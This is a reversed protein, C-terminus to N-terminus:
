PHAKGHCRLTCSSGNYSVPLRNNNGVVNMDFSVLGTGSVSSTGAPVGHASHCVSCSFGEQIHLTHGPWSAGTNIYNLDNCKACLAYPSAPVPSLIPKPNLNVITAGPPAGPGIQSRLYQRELIHDNKSGHPGNPGTGGFERNNDNNHCDTCLIRLSVVRGQMTFGINWMSRLLSPRSLNTADHMVPHSSTASPAFQLSVNLTDGSFLARAPMYGYAPLSQKKLSTGHCRLCNEYQYNAPAIVLGDLTVGAVGIQSPRLAPM